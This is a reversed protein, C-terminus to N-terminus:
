INAGPSKRRSPKNLPTSLNTSETETSEEPKTPQKREAIVFTIGPSDAIGANPTTLNARKTIATSGAAPTTISRRKEIHLLSPQLYPCADLCFYPIRRLTTLSTRQSM